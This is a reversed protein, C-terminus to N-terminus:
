LYVKTLQSMLYIDELVGDFTAGCSPLIAGIPTYAMGYLSKILRPDTQFQTLDNPNYKVISNQSMVWGDTNSPNDTGKSTSGSVSSASSSSKKHTVAIAIGVAAAIIILAVIGGIIFWKRKGSKPKAPLENQSWIPGSASYRDQPM